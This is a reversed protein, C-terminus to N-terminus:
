ETFALRVTAVRRDTLFRRSTRQTPRASRRVVEVYRQTSPERLCRGAQLGLISHLTDWLQNRWNGFTM